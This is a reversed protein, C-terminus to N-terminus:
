GDADEMEDILARAQDEQGRPVLVVTRKIRGVLPDTTLHEEESEYADIGEDVLYDIISGVDTRSDYDAVVVLEEDASGDTRGGFGEESDEGGVTGYGHEKGYERLGADDDGVYVVRPKKAVLASGCYPCTTVGEVYEGPEGTRKLDPCRPNACYM